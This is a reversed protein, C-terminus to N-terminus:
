NLVKLKSDFPDKLEYVKGTSKSVYYWGINDQTTSDNKSVETFVRINFCDIGKAQSSNDRNIYYDGKDDKMVKDDQNPEFIYKGNGSGLLNKVVQIAKDSSTVPSGPVSGTEAKPNAANARKFITDGIVMTDEDNFVATESASSDSDTITITISDKSGDITALKYAFQKQEGNEIANIGGKQTFEMSGEGSIWKGIVLEKPSKPTNTTKSGATTEDSGCGSLMVSIALLVIMSIVSVSLKQKM